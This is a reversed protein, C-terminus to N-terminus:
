IIWLPQYSTLCDVLWIREFSYRAVPFQIFYRSKIDLNTNKITMITEDNAPLTVTLSGGFSFDALRSRIGVSDVLHMKEWIGM